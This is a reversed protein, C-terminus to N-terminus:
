QKLKGSLFIRLQCKCFHANGFPLAFSCVSPNEELCKIVNEIGTDEAKCLHKFNKETCMFNKKCQMGAMIKKIEERDEDRMFKGKSASYTKKSSQIICGTTTIKLSDNMAEGESKNIKGKLIATSITM